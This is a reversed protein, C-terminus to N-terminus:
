RSVAVSFHSCQVALLPAYANKLVDGFAGFVREPGRTQYDSRERV